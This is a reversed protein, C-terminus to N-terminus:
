CLYLCLGVSGFYCEIGYNTKGIPCAKRFTFITSSQLQRLFWLLGISICGIISSLVLQVVLRRKYTQKNFQLFSSKMDNYTLIIGILVLVAGAVFVIYTAIRITQEDERYVLENEFAEIFYLLLLTSLTPIGITWNYINLNANSIRKVIPATQDMLFRLGHTTSLLGVPIGLAYSYDISIICFSSILLIALGLTLQVGNFVQKTKRSLRTWRFFADM